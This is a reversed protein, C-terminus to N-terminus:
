TESGLHVIVATIDDVVQGDMERMWCDWARASVHEAASVADDTPFKAVEQVVTDSDMFEWVGDSCLLVFRDTDPDIEHSSISPASTSGTDSITSDPKCLEDAKAPLGLVSSLHRKTIDPLASIGADHFGNLDGMARSMNLGPYRKGRDDRKGKAFVRYNWGGDFVVIGGNAEIREREEPLEPKHDVTLDVAKWLETGDENKLRRGLVVRSDGVHAIYLVKQSIVHLVVSCTTGSRSADVTKLATAKEILSQVKAFTQLLAEHPDDEVEVQSFLVKPLLDKVFNSVDHGKRGHGDFVGYLAYRDEVKLILFSDQNPAEPKLGKKCAFGFCEKSYDCAEGVTAVSKSSFSQASADGTKSGVSFRRGPKDEDHKLYDFLQSQTLQALLSRDKENVDEVATDEKNDGDDDDLGCTLRRRLEPVDQGSNNAVQKKTVICGM